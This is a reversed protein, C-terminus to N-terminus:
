PTAMGIRSWGRDAAWSKLLKAQGYARQRRKFMAVRQFWIAEEDIPNNNKLSFRDLHELYSSLTIALTIPKSKKDRSLGSVVPALYEQLRKDDSGIKKLRHKLSTHTAEIASRVMKARVPNLDVYAMADILAAEDLLAGSYFRGEFFHGTCNDERNARWAIPQKLHKMFMSLSGLTERLQTIKLPNGLFNARLIDRKDEVDIDDPNIAACSDLWRDIV